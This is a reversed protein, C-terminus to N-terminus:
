QKVIFEEPTHRYLNGFNEANLLKVHSEITNQMCYMYLDRYTIKPSKQLCKVVNLTFRDCMWTGYNGLAPNWYEAWSQEDGSAGTMALIGKLGILAQAVGESYCPELIVLMKRYAMQEVTQRLLEATMGQGAETDRWVLENVGGHSTNRGHGSWYLLVNAGSPISKMLDCINAVTLNAADYDVTAKPYGKAADKGSLLDALEPGGRVVGPENNQADNALAADTILIIHDDDLGGRRLLQYMALVDSQHRYNAMGNSGQVLIAYQSSLQPYEIGFDSDTAMDAFDKNATEDDYFINISVGKDVIQKGEAGYYTNHMIHGGAIQWHVYTTHALQTCNMQDFAICGAAGCLVQSKDKNRMKKIYQKMADARWVPNSQNVDKTNSRNAMLYINTSLNGTMPYNAAMAVLLLADYLKCEAFTPYLNYRELYAQEFGTSPEAYPSFGQCGQLSKMTKDGLAAIGEESLTNCVFWTRFTAEFIQWKDDWAPDEINGNNNVINWNRRMLAVEALQQENEVVCFNNSLLADAGGSVSSRGTSLLEDFYQTYHKLLETTSKYSYNLKLNINMSNTFFPAWEHFTQGYVDTPTFFACNLQGLESRRGIQTAYHELMIETLNGDSQCLPWFFMQKNVKGSEGASATAYRKLVDESTTTPAILTKHTEQCHPAFITMLNNDFPGIIADVDDRYALESGLADMNETQENHWELKLKFSMSDGAQAESLNELMWKATRELRAKTSADSLPAVVAVTVTQGEPLSPISTNNPDTESDSQTCSLLMGTGILIPTMIRMLMTSRKVGNQVARDIFEKLIVLTAAMLIILTTTEM